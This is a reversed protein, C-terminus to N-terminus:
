VVSKRDVWSIIHYLAVLISYAQLSNNYPKYFNVLAETLHTNCSLFAFLLALSIKLIGSKSDFEFEETTSDESTVADWDDSSVKAWDESSIKTWDEISMKAWDEPSMKSWDKSSKSTLNEDTMTTQSPEPKEVVDDDKAGNLHWNILKEYAMRIEKYMAETAPSPDHDPNYLKALNHFASKIEDPKAGPQIGLIKHLYDREKHM